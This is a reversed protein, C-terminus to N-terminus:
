CSHGSPERRIAAKTERYNKEEMFSGDGTLRKEQEEDIRLQLTTEQFVESYSVEQFHFKQFLALSVQNEKGIKAEFKHIGLSTIGYCMMMRAVEKGIGRGRNDPEAIMVEIEGLSPDESDTLFLNVDGVMCDEEPVCPDAWRKKDLIIFTCKDDDERWRRQMEYEQELTLPQSATLKQLEPSTMWQHYRPVHEREYPVLVVCKGELLTNENIRM